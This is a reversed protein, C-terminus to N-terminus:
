KLDCQSSEPQQRQFETIGARPIRWQKGNLRWAGKFLGAACWARVTPAKRQLLTAVEECTLDVELDGPATGNSETASLRELVWGVPVMAQPPLRELDRRLEAVPTM